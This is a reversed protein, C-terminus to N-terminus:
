LRALSSRARFDRHQERAGKLPATEERKYKLPSVTQYMFLPFSFLSFIVRGEEV